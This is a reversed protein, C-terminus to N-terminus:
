AAVGEQFQLAALRAYLGGQAILAAHNGQEVIRGGDMVVIRDAARVTALRHAIVITTRGQMLRALADQVLRESEADLASTAEDLLLLPVDRLLARAIAVRQRQGGSLRAGGEGLESDLGDPLARLFEEAHAARAADWIQDDTADWRGYRLNDRASAAFIVSDQPVLAMMARVAAPDAENLPVGNLLVAGSDPDYFRQALQILTSKGAGSPGVVAVTEGPEVILDIGQLAALDPRTPYHFRVNRFALQARGADGIARPQAPPSIDPQATMLEHLRSAAGAGRLLDGWVESLSGFAGAVLGGTIVFAAISGGSLRGAAVDVAGQWMVAVISGFILAIVIATMVARLRIRSKATAFGAEVTADFRAAERAEQGFSQVIKMAGLVETTVSGVAALRDQSARSLRRVRRGMVIIPVLILPIGLLLLGALKPALAFLYILGGVGTVANRLAISVTSGVVQDIIATDATMRSAIESPRNEEFFRPAQRLLNAQTASRIDAVVREGLWSVFYFRAATSLALIIVILFLYEFWRGIDAGGGAFGRDIVLRFGSPIALTAASSILLATAAGALRGPYRRAAGWIMALSGIPARAAKDQEAM